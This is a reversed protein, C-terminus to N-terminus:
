CIISKVPVTLAKDVPWTLKNLRDKITDQSIGTIEAWEAMCKSEGNFVLIRNTSKNRRNAKKTTWRCNDPCYNGDNDKRDLELGMEYGNFLAWAKFSEYSESWEACVSIGRGGYRAFKVHKVYTCREKMGRWVKYLPINSDGHTSRLKNGLIRVCGCNSSKGSKVDSLRYDKISGCECRAM